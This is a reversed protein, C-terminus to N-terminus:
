VVRYAVGLNFFRQPFAKAFHKTQTSGSLDADLAEIAEYMAELQRKVDKIPSM